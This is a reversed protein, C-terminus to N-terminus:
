SANVGARTRENTHWRLVRQQRRSGGSHRSATARALQIERREARLGLALELLLSGTVIVCAQLVLWWAMHRQELAVMNEGLAMAIVFAVGGGITMYARLLRRAPPRMVLWVTFTWFLVVLVTAFESQYPNTMMRELM